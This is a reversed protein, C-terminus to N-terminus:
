HSCLAAYAKRLLSPRARDPKAPRPARAPRAARAQRHRSAHNLLDRQREAALQQAIAPHLMM